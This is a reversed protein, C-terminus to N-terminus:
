SSSHNIIELRIDTGLSPDANSLRRVLDQRLSSFVCSRSLATGYKLVTNRSMPKSFFEYEVYGKSKIRTKFDLTPLSSDPFDNQSETTFDLFDWVSNISKGIEEITRTM